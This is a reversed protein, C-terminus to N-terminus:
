WDEQRTRVDNPDPPEDVDYLWVFAAVLGAGLVAVGWGAGLEYGVGVALLLLGLCLGLRARAVRSM